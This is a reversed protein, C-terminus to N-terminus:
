AMFQHCVERCMRIMNASAITGLVIKTPKTNPLAQSHFIGALIMAVTDTAMIRAVSM